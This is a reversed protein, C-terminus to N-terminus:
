PAARPWPLRRVGQDGHQANAHIALWRQDRFTCRCELCRFPRPEETAVRPRTAYDVVVAGIAFLGVLLLISGVIAATM